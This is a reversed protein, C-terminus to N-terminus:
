FAQKDGLFVPLTRMVILLDMALTWNRLYELDSAIRLRMSDVDNGGRYGRVQALGTIGPKVKHRLMYGPILKRFQENVAVVHPRPGVLSMQGQFVNILQPLEDISFRRLLHGVRTVRQDNRQAPAYQDACEEAVTMSRFKWVVIERGDLGYRCQRFLAPGRSDMRVAVGIFLLIPSLFLLALGSLLFDEARKVLSNVGLFPSDRVTVIPMGEVSEIRGNMLDTLFIDPAFHISATTDKLEDLLKLVRPQSAMPLALYIRNVGHERVYNGLQEFNGLLHWDGLVELRERHRDDFFGLVRVGFFPNGSLRQALGVGIESVGCVVVTDQTDTRMMARRLMIRAFLNGCFLVGPLGIFWPLVEFRPTFKLWASAYDFLAVATVVTLATMFSKRLMVRRADTLAVNGPFNLVFVLLGLVVVRADSLTGLSHAMAVLWLLILAPDLMVEIAGPVSLASRMPTVNARCAALISAGQKGDGHVHAAVRALKIAVNSPSITATGTRESHEM